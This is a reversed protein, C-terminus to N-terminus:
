TTSRGSTPQRAIAQDLYFLAEAHRATQLALVGLMHLSDAHNPATTLIQRYFQERRRPPWGPAVAAGASLRGRDPAKTQEHTFPSSVASGARAGAGSVDASAM